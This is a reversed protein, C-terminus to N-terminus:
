AASIHMLDDGMDRAQGTGGLPDAQMERKTLLVPDAPTVTCAARSSASAQAASYWGLQVYWSPWPTEWPGKWSASSLAM